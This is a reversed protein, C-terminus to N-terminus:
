QKVEPKFYEPSYKKAFYFLKLYHEFTIKLLNCENNPMAMKNSKGLSIKQAVCGGICLHRIWCDSCEEIEDLKVPVYKQKSIALEYINGIAYKKDNM